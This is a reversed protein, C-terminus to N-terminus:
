MGGEFNERGKLEVLVLEFAADGANSPRHMEADGCVVDGPQFSMSETQGDPSEMNGTGEALFIACNAPHYHMVSEEGPGYRIRLIRIADNEHELTYHDPDVVVPDPPAEQRVLNGGFAGLAVGVVVVASASLVRM